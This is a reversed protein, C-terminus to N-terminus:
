ELHFEARMFPKAEEDGSLRLRLESGEREVDIQFNFFPCCKSEAAVFQAVEALSLDAAGFEFSYGTQTELTNKRSALLKKTLASHESREAASLAQINCFFKNGTAM